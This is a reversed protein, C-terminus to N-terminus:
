YFTFISIIELLLITIYIFQNIEHNSLNVL